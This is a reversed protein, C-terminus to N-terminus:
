LQKPSKIRDQIAKDDIRLKSLHETCLQAQQKVISLANESEIKENGASTVKELAAILLRNDENLGAILRSLSDIMENVQSAENKLFDNRRLFVKRTLDGQAIKKFTNGFNTLPGCFRHSIIIQHVFALMFIALLAVYLREILAIFIVASMQQIHLENSEFMDHYFPTLIAFVIILVVTFMYVLNTVVFKLQVNNIFYNKLKRQNAGSGM